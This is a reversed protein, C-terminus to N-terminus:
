KVINNTVHYRVITQCIKDYNCRICAEINILDMWIERPGGMEVNKNRWQDSEQGQFNRNCTEIKELVGLDFPKM